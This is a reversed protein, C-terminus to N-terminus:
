VNKKRRLMLPVAAGFLIITAPEPIYVNLTTTDASENYDVLIPLEGTLWGDDIYGAIEDTRDGKLIITGYGSIVFKATGTGKLLNNAYITGGDLYVTGTGSGSSGTVSFNGLTGAPAPYNLGVTITGGNMYLTGTGLQSVYFNANPTQVGTNITGSNITVVGNDSTSAALTVYESVNITSGDLVLNNQSSSNTGGFVLIGTTYLGSTLTPYSNTKFGVKDTASPVIGPNWNGPNMWNGDGAAGTWQVYTTTPSAAASVVMVVMISTIIKKM